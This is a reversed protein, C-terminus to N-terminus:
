LLSVHQWFALAHKPSLAARVNLLSYPVQLTNRFNVCPTVINGHEKDDM